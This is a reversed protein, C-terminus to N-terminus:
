GVVRTGKPDKRAFYGLKWLDNIFDGDAIVSKRRQQTGSKDIRVTHPVPACGMATLPTVIPGALSPSGGNFLEFLWAEPQALGSTDAKTELGLKGLLASFMGQKRPPTSM